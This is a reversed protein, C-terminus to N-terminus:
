HLKHAKEALPNLGKLGLTLDQKLNDPETIGKIKFIKLGSFKSIEVKAAWSRRAAEASRVTSFNVPPGM